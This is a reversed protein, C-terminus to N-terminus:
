RYSDLYRVCAPCVALHADFREREQPALTGDLYDILFEILERCTMYKGQGFTSRAANAVGSPCSAASNQGGGRQHWPATGDARHGNRRHRSAASRYSFKGSARRHM